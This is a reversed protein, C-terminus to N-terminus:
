IFLGPWILVSCRQGPLSDDREHIPFRLIPRCRRPHPEEVRRDRRLHLGTATGLQQSREEAENRRRERFGQHLERPISEPNRSEAPARPQPQDISRPRVGDLPRIAIGPEGHAEPDRLRRGSRLLQVAQHSDFKRLIRRLLRHEGRSLRAQRRRPHVSGNKRCQLRRQADANIYNAGVKFDNRRSFLENSWSFDDKFQNKIQHTSQPTNVSQGFHAGSPYYIFPLESDAAILNDFKTHQFVFDNLMSGGLQWTHGALVSSYKNLTTGLSSPAALSSAGYKDSNKQYGYRVQLYQKANIDVSGKVTALQDTFPLVTSTGDLGPLLGGSDVTYSTARKTKEYTGFFHARDKVIPGGFTLGYQDRRYPQKGIGAVDESHSISNLSKARYFEYASGQFDNTGTKTVVSLVGGSSRGYEAKYQMTQIKFEQVAEINFNQLAGGITDDTNDGGDILFNVNRGSGGNLAITLQGPKTPDTNVSLSTGPALTGLNAFQRGNLPLNQLEQQSVVTGVSPSTAVLPAEATVTIQEQVAAPRLTSNLTRETSVNIEVKKTTLSGFGSLESTLTYVGPPLSPFKYAGSADTVETRSFGTADNTATITVGPLPSDSSDTVRGSLSGSGSQAVAIPATMLLLLTLSLFIPFRSRHAM